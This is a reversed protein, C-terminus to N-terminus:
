IRKRRSSGDSSFFQRIKKLVKQDDSFFIGHSFIKSFIDLGSDIRIGLLKRYTTSQPVPPCHPPRRARKVWRNSDNPSASNIFAGLLRCVYAHATTIYM